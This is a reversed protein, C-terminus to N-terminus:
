GAAALDSPFYTELDIIQGNEWLTVRSDGDATNSQGLIQGADNIDLARGYDGGLTGLAISAAISSDWLVAHTVDNVDTTFGVIQGLSNISTAGSSVGGLTGLDKIVGDSSWFAAHNADDGTTFSDGVVQGLDNIDTASSSSGGLTGLDNVTTGDWRTAHWNATGISNWGMGAVQGANNISNGTSFWSDGPIRDLAVSTLGDWRTPSYNEYSGDVNAYGTMQDSNNINYAFTDTQGPNHTVPVWQSGNYIVAEAVALNPIILRGGSIHGSDNVGTAVIQQNVTLSTTVLDSFSYDVASAQNSALALLALAGSKKLKFQKHKNIKMKKLKGLLLQNHKKSKYADHNNQIERGEDILM